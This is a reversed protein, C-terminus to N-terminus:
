PFKGMRNQVLLPFPSRKEHFPHWNRRYRAPRDSLRLHKM